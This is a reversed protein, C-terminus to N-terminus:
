GTSGSWGKGLQAGLFAVTKKVKNNIVPWRPDFCHLIPSIFGARFGRRLPSELFTQWPESKGRSFAEVAEFLLRATEDWEEPKKWGAAEFWARIDKTICPWTSVRYANERHFRSNTHPLLKRLVLDTIPEGAARAKRIDNVVAQVQSPESEMQQQHERGAQTQLYERRFREVQQRVRETGQDGQAM